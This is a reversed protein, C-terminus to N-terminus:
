IYIYIYIYIGTHTRQHIKLNESRAFLKGCDPYPCTFPREGTHVRVHNVLKYKAKFQAKLRDCGVWYCAHNTQDTGGVHEMLIHTTLDDVSKLIRGCVSPELPAAGDIRKLASSSTTSHSEIWLCKLDQRPQKNVASSSSSSSTATTYRHIFSTRVEPVQLHRQQQHQLSVRNPHFISHQFSSLSVDIDRRRSAAAAYEESFLGQSAALFLRQSEQSRGISPPPPPAEFATRTPYFASSSSSSTPGTPRPPTSFAAVESAASAGSHLRMQFLFPGPAAANSSCHRSSATSADFGNSIPVMGASCRGAAGIDVMRRYLLDDYSPTVSYTPTPVISHPGGLHGQPALTPPPALQLCDGGIVGGQQLRGVVGPPTGDGGASTHWCGGPFMRHYAAMPPHHPPPSIFADSHFSSGYRDAVGCGMTPVYM